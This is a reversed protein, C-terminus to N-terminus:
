LAQYNRIPQEVLQAVDAKPSPQILKDFQQDSENCCGV